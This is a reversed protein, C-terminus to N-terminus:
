IAIIKLHHNWDKIRANFIPGIMPDQRVDAYFNRLLRSIGEHGGIRHYLRNM